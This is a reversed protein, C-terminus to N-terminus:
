KNEFIDELENNEITAVVKDKKLGLILFVLGVVFSVFSVFLVPLGVFIFTLGAAQGETSTEGSTISKFIFVTILFFFVSLGLGSIGVIKFYSKKKM